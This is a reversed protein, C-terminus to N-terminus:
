IYIFYRLEPLFFPCQWGRGSSVSGREMLGVPSWCIYKSLFHICRLLERTICHTLSLANSCSHYLNCRHHLNSGQGPFNGCAKPVALFFFFLFSYMWGKRFTLAVWRNAVTLVKFKIRLAAGCCPLFEIFPRIILIWKLLYFNITFISLHYQIYM